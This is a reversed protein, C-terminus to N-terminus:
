GGHLSLSGVSAFTEAAFCYSAVPTGAALTVIVCAATGSAGTDAPTLRML